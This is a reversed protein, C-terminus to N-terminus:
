SAACRSHRNRASWGAAVLLALTFGCLVFFTGIENSRAVDGKEIAQELKRQTPDETRDENDAEESM